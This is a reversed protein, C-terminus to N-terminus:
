KNREKKCMQVNETKGLPLIRPGTDEELLVDWGFKQMSIVKVMENTWDGRYFSVFYANGSSAYNKAEKLAASRMRRPTKEIQFLGDPSQCVLVFFLTIPNHEPFRRGFAALFDRGESVLTHFTIRVFPEALECRGVNVRNEETLVDFYKNSGREAVYGVPLVERNLRAEDVLGPLEFDIQM